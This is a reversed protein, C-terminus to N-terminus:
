EKFITERTCMRYGKDDRIRIYVPHRLSKETIEQCKVELVRRVPETSKDFYEKWYKRDADTGCNVRSVPKIEGSTEDYYGVLLAGVVGVNKGTGPQYGYM